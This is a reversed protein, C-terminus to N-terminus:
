PGAAPPTSADKLRQLVLIRDQVRAAILKLKTAQESQVQQFAKLATQQAAESKNQRADALAQQALQVKAQMELSASKFEELAGERLTQAVEEFSRSALDPFTRLLEESVAPDISTPTAAAQNGPRTSSPTTATVRSIARSVDAELAAEWEPALLALTEVRAGNGVTLGLYIITGNESAFPLMGAAGAATKAAANSQPDHKSVRVKGDSLREYEALLGAVRTVYDGLAAPLASVDAPAFLRLNIPTNLGALLTITPQSLEGSPAPADVTEVTRQRAQQWYYFGGGTLALALALAAMLGVRSAASTESTRDVQLSTKNAMTKMILTEVSFYGGARPRALSKSL